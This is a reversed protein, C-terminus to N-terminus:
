QTKVWLSVLLKHGNGDRLSVLTMTFLWVVNLELADTVCSVGLSYM